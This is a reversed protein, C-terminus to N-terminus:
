MNPFLPTPMDTRWCKTWNEGRYLGDPDATVIIRRAGIVLKCPSVQIHARYEQLVWFLLEGSPGLLWGYKLGTSTLATVLDDSVDSSPSCTPKVEWVRITGDDACSVISEGDPMFAVSRVLGVHGHLTAALAGTEADWLCVDSAFSGTCIFRGDPSFTASCTSSTEDGFILVKQGYTYNWVRVEQYGASLIHTGTPSFAISYVNDLEIIKRLHQGTAAQWLHIDGGSDGTVLAALLRGDPSIIVTRVPRNCVLPSNSGARGTEIDWVRVTKDWSGSVLSRADMSFTVATVWDEHGQVLERVVQGSRSDWLRITHDASASAILRGDTSIAVSLVMDTHGLLPLLKPEGNHTYWVRVSCDGSGSVIFSGDPAVAVSTVSKDHAPLPQVARKSSGADWIRITNDSSASAIYSGDTSFVASRVLNSHGSFITRSYQEVPLQLFWLCVVNKDSALAMSRGESSFQVSRVRGVHERLKAIIGWTQCDWIIIISDGSGSGLMSGDPSFDVSYVPDEHGVLPLGVQECTHFNSLRITNDSSGSALILSNPSFAISNVARDHGNLAAIHKGTEATWLRISRDESGSALISGDPSFKVSLVARLHGNLQLSTPQSTLNTWIYVGSSTGSAISEGSPSFAVSNVVADGNHLLIMTEEGILTDWIRITSDISGSALQLGDPSYAVATVGRTHGTLTAVLQGGHRDTGFSEVSVLGACKPAFTQYILGDKAAFPLASLYIHPASREIAEYSSAVFSNADRLFQSV